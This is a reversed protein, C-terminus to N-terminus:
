YDPIWPLQKAMATPKPCVSLTQDQQRNGSLCCFIQNGYFMTMSSVQRSTTRLHICAFAVSTLLLSTALLQVIIYFSPNMYGILWRPHYIKVFGPLKRKGNAPWQRAIRQDILSSLRFYFDENSPEADDQLLLFYKIKPFSQFNALICHLHANKEREYINIFPTSINSVLFVPLLRRILEVGESIKEISNDNECLTIIFRPHHNRLLHHLVQGIYFKGPNHDTQDRGYLISILIHEDTDLGISKPRQLLSHSSSLNTPLQLYDYFRSQQTRDSILNPYEKSNMSLNKLWEFAVMQKEKHQDVLQDRDSGSSSYTFSIRRIHYLLGFPQYYSIVSAVALVILFAYIYSSYIGGCRTFSFSSSLCRRSRMRLTFM